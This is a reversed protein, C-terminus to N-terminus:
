KGLMDNKLYAYFSLFMFKLQGRTVGARVKSEEPDEWSDVFFSKQKLLASFDPNNSVEDPQSICLIRAIM